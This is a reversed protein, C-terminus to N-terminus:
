KSDKMTKVGHFEGEYKMIENEVRREVVRENSGLKKM